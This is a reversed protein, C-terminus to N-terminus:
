ALYPYAKSRGNELESSTKVKFDFTGKQVPLKTVKKPTRKKDKNTFKNKAKPDDLLLLAVGIFTLFSMFLNSKSTNNM